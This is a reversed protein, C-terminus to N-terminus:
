HQSQTQGRHTQHTQDNRGLTWAHLWVESHVIIKFALIWHIRNRHKHAFSCSKWSQALATVVIKVMLLMLVFSPCSTAVSGVEGGPPQTCTILAPSLAFLFFLPWTLRSHLFAPHLSSLWSCGGGLTTPDSGLSAQEGTVMQNYDGMSFTKQEIDIAMQGNKFKERMEELESESVQYFRVQFLFRVLCSLM